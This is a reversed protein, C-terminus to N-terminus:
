CAGDHAPDLHDLLETHVSHELCMGRPSQTWRLATLRPDLLELGLSTLAKYGCAMEARVSVCPQQLYEPFHVVGVTYLYVVVSFKVFFSKHAAPMFTVEARTPRTRPQSQAHLASHADAAQGAAQDHFRRPRPPPCPHHRDAPSDAHPCHDAAPAADTNAHTGPHPNQASSRRRPRPPPNPRVLALPRPRRTPDMPFM